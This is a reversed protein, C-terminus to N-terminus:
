RFIVHIIYIQYFFQIFKSSVLSIPVGNKLHDYEEAVVVFFTGKILGFQHSRRAPSRIIIVKHRVEIPSAHPSPESMFAPDFWKTTSEKKSFSERRHRLYRHRFRAISSTGLFRSQCRVFLFFVWKFGKKDKRFNPTSSSSLRMGRPLTANPGKSIRPLLSSTSTALSFCFVTPRDRKM